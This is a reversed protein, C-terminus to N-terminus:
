GAAAAVVVVSVVGLMALGDREDSGALSEIRAAPAVSLVRGSDSRIPRTDREDHLHSVRRPSSDLITATSRRRSDIAAHHILRALALSTAVPRPRTEPSDRFTFVPSEIQETRSQKNAASLIEGVQGALKSEADM